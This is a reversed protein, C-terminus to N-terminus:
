HRSACRRTSRSHSCRWLRRPSGDPPRGMVERLWGLHIFNEAGEGRRGAIGPDREFGLRHADLLHLPLVDLALQDLVVPVQGRRCAREVQM